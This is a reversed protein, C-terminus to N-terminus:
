SKSSNNLQISVTTFLYNLVFCVWYDKEVIVENVGLQASANRIITQLEVKSVKKFELM